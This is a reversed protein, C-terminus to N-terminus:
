APVFEAAFGADTWANRLANLSGNGRGIWYLYVVGNARHQIEVTRGTATHIFM